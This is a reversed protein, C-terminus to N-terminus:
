NLDITELDDPVFINGNFYQKAESTYREKRHPLDSDETHYLILNKANLSQATECADKVTSHNKEYPRFREAESYLCFAEHTLWDCNEAYPRSSQRCPEDGCFVLRKGDFSMVFGFQKTRPSNIDFFRVEHGIIKATDNHSVTILHIRKGIFSYQYPLLLKGALDDILPIVDDHSYINIDGNFTSKNMMQASIRIVWILGLLHDIHSHSIFVDHIKDLSFGAHKIRSLITNGGGTDVLLNRGRDSLIFCTNYCETVLANGTGLM